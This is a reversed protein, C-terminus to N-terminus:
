KRMFKYLRDILIDFEFMNFELCNKQCISDKFTDHSSYYKLRDKRMSASVKGIPTCGERM